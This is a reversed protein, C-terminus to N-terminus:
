YDDGVKFFVQGGHGPGSAQLCLHFGVDAGDYASHPYSSLILM